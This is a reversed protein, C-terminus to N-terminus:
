AAHAIKKTQHMIYVDHRLNTPPYTMYSFTDNRVQNKTHDRHIKNMHFMHLVLIIQSVHEELSVYRTLSNNRGGERKETIQKSQAPRRSGHRSINQQKKQMMSPEFSLSFLDLEWGM